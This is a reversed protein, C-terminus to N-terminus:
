QVEASGLVPNPRFRMVRVWGPGLVPAGIFGVIVWNSGVKAYIRAYVQKTKWISYRKKGMNQNIGLLEVRRVLFGSSIM